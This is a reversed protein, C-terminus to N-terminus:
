AAEFRESGYVLPSTFLCFDQQEKRKSNGWPDVENPQRIRDRGFDM